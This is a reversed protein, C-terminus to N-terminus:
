ARAGDGSNWCRAADIGQNGSSGGSDVYDAALFGGYEGLHTLKVSGAIRTTRASSCSSVQRPNGYAIRRSLHTYFSNNATKQLM